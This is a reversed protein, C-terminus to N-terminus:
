GTAQPLTEETTTGRGDTVPSILVRSANQREPTGGALILRLGEHRINGAANVDRDHFLGCTCTWTRDSLTLTNNVAGCGRCLRSSPYFRGIVALHKRQWQAKYTLLLRFQGWSADYISKSLNTKGLGSVSLDEICIADFRRVLSTTLKHLFDKRQNTVRQYQRALSARVQERNKSGRKCRSLQRQLRRVKREAQQYHKPALIRTGDSLVALDKLGLDVGITRSPNPAPLPADPLRFHVVLTVYWAGTADQKFTASKPIGKLPRHLVLRVSGVKPVLLRDGVLTIRQPIRFSAWERKKCKFKPLGSRHAFFARFARDLDRIAQQLLQANLERLWAMEPQQKLLALETCLETLTLNQGTAKYHALRRNLAWNYVYRRAGACQRFWGEQKPTPLLRYRYTKQHISM